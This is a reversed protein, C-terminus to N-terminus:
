VIFLIIWYVKSALFVFFFFIIKGYRHDDFENIQQKVDSTLRDSRISRHMIRGILGMGLQRKGRKELVKNMVSNRIKSLGVGADVTDLDESPLSTTPQQYYDKVPRVFFLFIFHIHHIIVFQLILVFLDNLANTFNLYCPTLFM